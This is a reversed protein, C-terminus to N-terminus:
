APQSMKFESGHLKKARSGQLCPITVQETSLDPSAPPLGAYLGGEKVVSAEQLASLLDIVDQDDPVQDVFAQARSLFKPWGYDVLLNLDVRHATSLQWAKAFDTM